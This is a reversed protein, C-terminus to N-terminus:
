LMRVEGWSVCWVAAGEELHEVIYNTTNLQHKRDRIPKCTPRDAWVQSKPKLNAARLEHSAHRRALGLFHRPAPDRVDEILAGKWQERTQEDLSPFRMLGHFHDRMIGLAIVEVDCGHLRDIMVTCILKCQEASLRVPPYKLKKTVAEFVPEWVGAPPPNKYDGDVHERHRFTRFGRPDGRLWTGYTSGVCHYWNNWANPNQQSSTPLSM